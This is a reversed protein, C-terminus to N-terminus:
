NLEFKLNLNGLFCFVIVAQEILLGKYSPLSDDKSAFGQDQIWLVGRGWVLFRGLILVHILRIFQCLFTMLFLQWSFIKLINNISYVQEAEIKGHNTQSTKRATYANFVKGTQHKKDETKRQDEEATEQSLLLLLLLVVAPCCVCCCGCCLNPNCHSQSGHVM